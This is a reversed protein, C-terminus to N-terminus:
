SKKDSRSTNYFNGVNADGKVKIKKAKFSQQPGDEEEAMMESQMAKEKRDEKQEYIFFVLGIFGDLPGAYRALKDLKGPLDFAIDALGLVMIALSVALFVIWFIKSVGRHTVQKDALVKSKEVFLNARAKIAALVTNFYREIEAVATYKVFYELDNMSNFINKPDIGELIANEPCYALLAELQEIYKSYLANKASEPDIRWSSGSITELLEKKTLVKKNKGM